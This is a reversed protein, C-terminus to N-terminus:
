SPTVLRITFPNCGNFLENCFFEDNYWNDAVMKVMDFKDGKPVFPLFFPDDTEVSKRIFDLCGGISVFVSRLIEVDSRLSFGRGVHSAQKFCELGDKFDYKDFIIINNNDPRIFSGYVAEIKNKISIGNSILKDFQSESTPKNKPNFINVVKGAYKYLKSIFKNEIFKLHAIGIKRFISLLEFAVNRQETDEVRVSFEYRLNSQNTASPDSILSHDLYVKSGDQLDSSTVKIM